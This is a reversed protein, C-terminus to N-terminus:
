TAATAHTQDRAGSSGYAMPTAVFIKKGKIGKFLPLIELKNTRPYFKGASIRFFEGPSEFESFGQFFPPQMALYTQLKVDLGVTNM